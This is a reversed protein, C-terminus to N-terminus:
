ILKEAFEFVWLVVVFIEVHIILLSLTATAAVVRRGWIHINSSSLFLIGRLIAHYAL